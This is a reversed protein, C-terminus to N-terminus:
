SLICKSEKAISNHSRLIHKYLFARLSSPIIRASCRIIINVIFRPLSIIDSRLLLKQIVIESKLYQIGGRRKIVNSDMKVLYLSEQLSTIKMGKKHMRIWLHYDEMYPCHIYGGACLVSSKKYMVTAHNVPSRFKIYTNIDEPCYKTSVTEKKHIECEFLATGLVDINHHSQIYEIQKTFRNPLSIDDSDMRAIWEFSCHKIGENLANSLGSNKDLQILKFNKYLKKYKDIVSYLDPTLYGDAVLVIESPPCTQDILVSKLALDFYEAKEKAYVSMLVSFHFDPFKM